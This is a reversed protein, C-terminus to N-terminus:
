SAFSFVYWRFININWRLFGKETREQGDQGVRCQRAKGQGSSQKVKVQGKENDM